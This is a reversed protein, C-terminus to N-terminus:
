ASLGYRSWLNVIPKQKTEAYDVCNKTGGSSGNWLAVILDAHDVMAENRLQFAGPHYASSVNVVSHAQGLLIRYLEQARAPWRKEQGPFPVYAWLEIDLKIAALALAQDWGIAMGSIVVHPTQERLFNQALNVCREAVAEGYGGLKDPRHGTGAFIM